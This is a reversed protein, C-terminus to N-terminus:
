SLFDGRKGFFSMSSAPEPTGGELALITILKLVELVNEGTKASCEIYAAAGLKNAVTLGQLDMLLYEVCLYNRHTKVEEYNVPGIFTRGFYERAETEVETTPTDRLDKDCGVL